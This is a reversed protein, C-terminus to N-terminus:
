VLIRLGPLYAVLTETANQGRAGTSAGAADSIALAGM